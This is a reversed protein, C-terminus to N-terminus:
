SCPSASTPTRSQSGPLCCRRASSSTPTPGDVLKPPPCTSWRCRRRSVAAALQHRREAATMLDATPSPRTPPTRTTAGEAGLRVIKLDPPTPTPEAAAAAAPTEMRDSLVFLRNSLEEIKADQRSVDARL